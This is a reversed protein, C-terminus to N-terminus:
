HLPLRVTAGYGDATAATELSGSYLRVIRQMLNVGQGSSAPRLAQADVDAFRESWDLILVDDEVYGGVAATGGRGLAGYKLSNTTLEGLILSVARAREEDLEVDAVKGTDLYGGSREFVEAVDGCLAKLGLGGAVDVLRAHVDSLFTLRQAVDRAFERHEPAAQGSAILLAASVSHANRLRHRMELAVTAAADERRRRETIDRSTSLIAQVEGSPSNVPSVTVDWWRPEGKATPCFAEFRSMRGASANDLSQRVMAKSEEPWLSDWPKGAIGCFDDVQMAEKGNCNMFQLTGDAGLVKVCDDSQDFLGLIVASLPLGSGRLFDVADADDAANGTIVRLPLPEGNAAAFDIPKIM